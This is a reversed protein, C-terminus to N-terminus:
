APLGQKVRNDKMRQMISQLCEASHTKMCAYMELIDAPIIGMEIDRDWNAQTWSRLFNAAEGQSHGKSLLWGYVMAPARHAGGACHVLINTKRVTYFDLLRKTCFFPAYGWPAMENIPFWFLKSPAPDLIKPMSDNVNIIVDFGRIQAAEEPGVSISYKPLQIMNAM